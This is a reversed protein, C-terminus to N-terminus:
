FLEILIYSFIIVFKVVVFMVYYNACVMIKVVYFNVLM